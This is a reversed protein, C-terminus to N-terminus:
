RSQDIMLRLRHEEAMLSAVQTELGAIKSQQTRPGTLGKQVWQWARTLWQKMPDEGTPAASSNEAVPVAGLMAMQLRAAELRRQAQALQHQVEHKRSILQERTMLLHALPCTPLRALSCLIM